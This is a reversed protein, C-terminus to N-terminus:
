TYIGVTVINQQVALASALADTDDHEQISSVSPEMARSSTSFIGNNSMIPEEPGAEPAITSTM